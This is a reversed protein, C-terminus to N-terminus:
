DGGMVAAIRADSELRSAVAGVLRQADAVSGSAMQIPMSLHVVISRAGQVPAPTGSTGEKGRRVYDRMRKASAAPVVMEGHHIMALQDGQINWAGEKYWHPSRAQWKNWAIAPTGYRSKIYKMGADIQIHPDASKKYGYDKWTSNLFQAIGYATSVPNQATSKWGSEHQWLTDLSAWQNAGWGYAAMRGKAYARPDGSQPTSGAKASSVGAPSSGFSRPASGLSPSYVDVDNIDESWGQYPKGWRRTIDSISAKDIRGDRVFDNTWVYGGGASLAVHGQGGTWWVPVGPPPTGSHRKRTHAWGIAATGYKSPVGLAMRVDMLCKNHWNSAGSRSQRQMWSLAAAGRGTASGSNSGTLKGLASVVASGSNGVAGVKGVKSGSGGGPAAMDGVGGLIDQLASNGPDGPTNPTAVRDLGATVADIEEVSGTGGGGGPGGHEGGFFGLAGGVLAGVGGGIATGIGPAIMTGIMAGTGGMQAAGTVVGGVKNRTASSGDGSILGGALSGGLAAAAGIGVGKVRPSMGIRPRPGGGPGGGAGGARGGMIRNMAYMGAIGGGFNSAASVAGMLPGAAAAGTGMVGGLIGGGAGLATNLNRFASAAADVQRRLQPLASDALEQEVGAKAQAKRRDADFVTDGIQSAGGGTKSLTSTMKSSSAGGMKSATEGYSYIFEQTSADLGLSSMTARMNSGEARGENLAQASPMKGGYIKKLLQEAIQEPTQKVGGSGITKIGMPMLNYYAQPSYFGTAAAAGQEYSGLLNGARGASAQLQQSAGSMSLGQRERITQLGAFADASSTYGTLGGQGPGGFWSHRAQGMVQNVNGSSGWATLQSLREANVWNDRKSNGYAALGGTVAGAVAWKQGTSLSFRSNGGNPLPGGDNDGGSGGQGGGTMGSRRAPATAPRTSFTSDGGNASGGGGSRRGGGMGGGLADLKTGDIKKLEANFEKVNKVLREWQKNLNDLSKTDVKFGATV